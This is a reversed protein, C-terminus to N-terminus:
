IDMPKISQMAPLWGDSTQVDVQKRSLENKTCSSERYLSELKCADGGSSSRTYVSTEKIRDFAHRRTETRPQRPGPRSGASGRATAWGELAATRSQPQSGVKSSPRFRLLRFFVESTQLSTGRPIAETNQCEPPTASRRCPTCTRGSGTRPSLQGHHGACLASLFGGAPTRGKPM